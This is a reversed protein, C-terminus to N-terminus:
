GQGWDQTKRSIRLVDLGDLRVQSARGSTLKAKAMEMYVGGDAFEAWLDARDLLTYVVDFDTVPYELTRDNTLEPYVSGSEPLGLEDRRELVLQKAHRRLGLVQKSPRAVSSRAYNSTIANVQM